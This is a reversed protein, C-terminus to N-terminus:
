GLTNIIIESSGISSNLSVKEVTWGFWNIDVRLYM